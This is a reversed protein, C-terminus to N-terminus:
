SFRFCTSVLFESAKIWDLADAVVFVSGTLLVVEDTRAEVKAAVLAAEVSNFSEGKLGFEAAETQLAQADKGRAVNAKCFYYSANKPLISLVITVDKDSVTGFVIHLNKSQPLHAFVERLGGENHASDFIVLPSQQMVMWRGIFNTNSRVNAIGNIIANDSIALGGYRLKIIAGIATTINKQQYTGTLDTVVRELLLNGKYLVDFESGSVKSVVNKLTVDKDAFSIAASLRTAVIKFVEKTEPQTEGIVVPINQKIIGAKEGAILTLTDGLFQTHDLSINTIVSLLPTIVNTSDLRGGLGTEIVCYDVRREYFYAFMMATTIEFFSADIKAFDDCYESVFSSIFSEEILVGNIKIREKFDIYHPSTFTGITYGQSQLISSIIHTVSGKGNTGAIHISKLNNQPNGIVNCLAIINDLNAKYAAAGIRQFMPLRNLLYDLVEPYTM